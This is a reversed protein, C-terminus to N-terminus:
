SSRSIGAKKLVEASVGVKRWADYTLGKSASYDKAVKTFEAELASLDVKSEMARLENELDMREQVLALRKLPEADDLSETITALRRNISEPTRKRGRKPRNSELATLYAKVTRGMTRGAAMAEKHAPSMERKKKPPMKGYSWMATARYLYSQETGQTVGESIGKFRSSGLLIEVLANDNIV